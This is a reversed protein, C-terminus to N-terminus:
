PAGNVYFRGMWGSRYAPNAPAPNASFLADTNLDFAVQTPKDDFGGFSILMGQTGVAILQLTLASNPQMEACCSMRGSVNVPAAWAQITANEGSVTARDPTFHASPEVGIYLGLEQSGPLVALAATPADGGVLGYTGGGADVGCIIAVNDPFPPEPTDVDGGGPAYFPCSRPVLLTTDNASVLIEPPVTIQYSTDRQTGCANLALLVMPIIRKM